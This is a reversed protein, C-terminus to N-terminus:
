RDSRRRERTNKWCLLCAPLFGYVGKSVFIEISIKRIRRKVNPVFSLILATGIWTRAAPCILSTFMLSIDVVVVYFGHIGVDGRKEDINPTPEEQPNNSINGSNNHSTNHNLCSLHSSHYLITPWYTSQPTRRELMQMEVLTDMWVMFIPNTHYCVEHFPVYQFSGVSREQMMMGSIFLAAVSTHSLITSLCENAVVTMILVCLEIPLSRPM